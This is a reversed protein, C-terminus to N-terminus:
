FLGLCLCVAGVISLLSFITVWGRVDETMGDQVGLAILAPGVVEGGLLLVLGCAVLGAAPKVGPEGVPDIQRGSRPDSVM